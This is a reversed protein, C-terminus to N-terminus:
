RMDEPRTTGEPTLESSTRRPDLRAELAAAHGALAKTKKHRLRRENWGYAAGTGGFLYAVADPIKLSGWFSIGIRAFTVQGALQSVAWAGLAAIAVLSGWPIILHVTDCIVDLVKLQFILKLEEPTRTSPQTPLDWM